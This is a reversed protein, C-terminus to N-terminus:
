ASVREPQGALLDGTGAFPEFGFRRQIDARVRCGEAGPRPGREGRWSGPNDRFDEMWSIQQREAFAASDSAPDLLSPVYLEWRGDRLWRDMAPVFKGGDRQTDPEAAYREVAALLQGEGGAQEAAARWAKEAKARSSRKRGWEPFAQWARGFLLSTARQPSGDPEGIHNHNHNQNTPIGNLPKEDDTSAKDKNKSARKAASAKGATKSGRVVGEYKAIEAAARKQTLHGGKVTFFDLVVGEVKSWESPTMQAIRALKAPDRPLRGGARWLAMLLLLYAGHEVTSLHTTDALYDAIYLKMYPPASM